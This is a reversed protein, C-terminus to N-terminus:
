PVAATADAHGLLERHIGRLLAALILQPNVNGSAWTRAEEVLEVSRAAGLPHIGKERAVRELWDAADRNLLEPGDGLAARGLDRLWSELSTFLEHLTRAGAPPYDLVRSFRASPAKELAARLLHFADRRLSELPAEEGDLELFGLARGISGGSLFAAKEAEEASVDAEGTLFDVVRAPPLPPLHLATVRSRITPLLRGPESATLVFWLDPPPEELLKLLANAAEPSSEQAVLEEADAILFLSRAGMAPRRSARRRLNRVTGLHLGRLEPSFTPYLPRARVEELRAIRAEELAEDDREPSGRSPPRKVPFYWHLDPHEVRSALRCDRCTGCPGEEGPDRCLLMQGIWLGMRQKGVGPPGHLLLVPPLRGARFARAVARATEEHGTLAPLTM